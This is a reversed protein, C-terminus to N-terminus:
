EDRDGLLDLKRARHVALTRRSVGLKSYVNKLHWKVTETGLRLARAAQENSMGRAILSLIERERASLPEVLTERAGTATERAVGVDSSPPAANTSAGKGLASRLTARWAMVAEGTGAASAELEQVILSAITSGEDAISRVIGSKEGVELLARVEARAREVQQGQWLAVALMVRVRACPYPSRDPDEDALVARLLEAAEAHRNLHLLWRARALCRVRWTESAASPVSPAVPPTSSELRQLAAEAELPRGADLWLRVREALVLAGLRTWGRRLAIHEARDLISHAGDDDGRVAAVRARTLYALRVSDLYCTEDVIDIRDALLEDAKDLDDWEYHVAALSCAIMTAAASRTGAHLEALRLAERMERAGQHLKGERLDCASLLIARYAQTVLNRSTDQLLPYREPSQMARAEQVRGAKQYCHTLGNLFAQVVLTSHEEDVSVTDLRGLCQEGLPLAAATQDKLAIICFRLALLETELPASSATARTQAALDEVVALADDLQLTLMLAWAMAVRLRHRTRVSEAPLKRVWALLEHVRSAEVERMACREVWDTALDLRDAALAHRVAETWFGADAFWRAAAVHLGPIRDPARRDLEARLFDRFLAHYRFWRNEDDLAQLFLNQQHLQLLRAAGEGPPVGAVAECLPGNFRELISTRLLVDVVAPDLTPLVSEALYANIAKSKGSFGAILAGADTQGRLAISAIQLGTVWGETADFLAKAQAADLRLSSASAALFRQTDDLDFRLQEPGVEVLEDHARLYALPLAPESRTAIVVSLNAPARLLLFSVLDHVASSHIREFDDLVLTIRADIRDLANIVSTLRVKPPATESEATFEAADEALPGLAEALARTVYAAFQAPDDDDEDLTVWAVIRGRELLRQRWETLVTSKGFGAPAQVVTLVRDCGLDLAALIGPRHVVNRPTRPPALKTRIMRTAPATSRPASTM